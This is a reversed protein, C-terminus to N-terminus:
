CSDQLGDEILHLKSLSFLCCKLLLWLLMERDIKLVEYLFNVGVRMRRTMSLCLLLAIVSSRCHRSRCHIGTAAPATVPSVPVGGAAAPFAPQAM